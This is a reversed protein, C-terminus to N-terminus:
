PKAKEAEQLQKENEKADWAFDWIKTYESLPGLGVEARRKDVNEPDELAQVYYRGTKENMGIQSGYIQKKGQRLAVRDELLALSSAPVNGKKVQERVMPLYQLQFPLDAHQIVLFQASSALQGVKEKGVWGHKAIIAKVKEQNLKDQDAMKQWLNQMEPSDNSHKKMVSDIMLRYKQDDTQITLLEKQLPKDYNAEIVDLKKQLRALLKPWEKEPHLVKLDSDTKLHNLNTWGNEVSLNLYKLAKKKDGTLAASCAANYLDTPNKPETKFALEYNKLSNQYDKAKYFSL